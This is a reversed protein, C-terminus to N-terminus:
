ILEQFRLCGMALLGNVNVNSDMTVTIGSGITVQDGAALTFPPPTGGWTASSSWNGSAAATFTGAARAFNSGLLAVVIIFGIKSSSIKNKM